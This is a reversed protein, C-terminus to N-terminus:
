DAMDMSLTEVNNGPYNASHVEGYNDYNHSSNLSEFTLFHIRRLSTFFWWSNLTILNWFEVTTSKTTIKTTMKTTSKTTAPGGTNHYSSVVTLLLILLKMERSIKWFDSDALSFDGVKYESDGATYLCTVHNYGHKQVNETKINLVVESIKFM